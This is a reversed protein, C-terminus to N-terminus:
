GKPENPFEYELDIKSQGCCPESKTAAGEQKAGRNARQSNKATIAKQEIETMGSQQRIKWAAWCGFCYGRDM